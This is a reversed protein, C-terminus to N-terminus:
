MKCRLALVFWRRISADFKTNLQIETMKYRIKLCVGAFARFRGGTNAGAQKQEVVFHRLNMVGLQKFAELM